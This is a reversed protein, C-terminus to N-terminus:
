RKLTTIDQSPPGAQASGCALAAVIAGVLVVFLTKRSSHM